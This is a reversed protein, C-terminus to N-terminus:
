NEALYEQDIYSIVNETHNAFLFVDIIKLLFMSNHVKETFQRLLKVIM